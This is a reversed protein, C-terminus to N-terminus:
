MFKKSKTTGLQKLNTPNQIKRSHKTNQTKYQEATYLLARKPKANSLQILYIPNQIALYTTNPKKTKTQQTEYHEKPSQM